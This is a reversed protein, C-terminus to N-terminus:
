KGGKGGYNRWLADHATGKNRKRYRGSWVISFFIMIGIFGAAGAGVFAGTKSAMPAQKATESFFVRLHEMEAETINKASFIPGMVPLGPSNVWGTMLLARKPGAYVQSLNPGLIGGDLEGVGASHCSICPPGGNTFRKEGTFLAMGTKYDGQVAPAAPAEQAPQTEATQAAAAMPLLIFLAALAFRLVKKFGKRGDRLIM